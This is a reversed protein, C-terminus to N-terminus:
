KGLMKNYAETMAAETETGGNDNFTKVFTDFYDVPQDGTIIEIFAKQYIKKLTEANKSYTETAPVIPRVYGPGKAYTEAYEYRSPMYKKYLDASGSGFFFVTIGKERLEAATASARQLNNDVISYNEGEIGWSVLKSYEEDTFLADVMSMIAKVKNPDEMGKTTIVFKEGLGGGSETGSQGNPGAFAVAPEFKMDPNVSISEKYCPGGAEGEATNPPSYHYFAVQGTVGVRNNMFSHSLAWYGGTNEGTVFEPDIIGDKYYQALKALALKAEPQTANFVVKGDKISTAMQEAESTIAKGSELIGHAGFVAQITTTSMGYTDKKGNKDPDENRFKYMATEFEELTSPIKEIGVNKLWDTRWMLVTPYTGDIAVMSFGYNKGNYKTANWIMNNQDYADVTKAYNPALERITSEPLEGVIGMDVYKGLNGLNNVRMVDPMEGAALKVNLADDWSQNDIFWFNFKVNFKEEVAKVIASDPNPQGSTQYALWDITIPESSAAETAAGQAATTSAAAPTTTATTGACGALSVALLTVTLLTAISRSLKNAM